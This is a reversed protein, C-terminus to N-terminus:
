PAGVPGPLGAEPALLQRAVAAGLLCAGATTTAAAVPLPLWVLKGLPASLASLHRQALWGAVRSLALAPVGGLAVVRWGERWPDVRPGQALQGAGLAWVIPLSLIAGVWAVAVCALFVAGLWGAPVWAALLGAPVLLLGGCVVAGVPIAVQLSLLREAFRDLDPSLGALRSPYVMCLPAAWVVIATWADVRGSSVAVAALLGFFLGYTLWAPVEDTHEIM